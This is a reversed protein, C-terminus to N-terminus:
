KVMAIGFFLARRLSRGTFIPNLRYLWDYHERGIRARLSHEIPRYMILSLTRPGNRSGINYQGRKQSM